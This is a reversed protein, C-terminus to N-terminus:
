RGAAKLGAWAGLVGAATSGLAYAAAAGPRGGRLLELAELSFASFTTFGGCFGAGLLVQWHRRAPDPHGLCAGAVLGLAASGAVNIAFTGWPWRDGLHGAAWRGFWYRANAGAGGGLMLLVAPHTLWGTM